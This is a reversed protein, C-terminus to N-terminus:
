AEGYGRAGGEEAGGSRAEEMCPIEEIAAEVGAKSSSEKDGNGPTVFGTPATV